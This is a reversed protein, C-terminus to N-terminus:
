NARVRYFRQPNNTAQSDTFQFQGTSIESVSGLSTWNSLASSINTSSFATYSGEPTNTFGFRFSGNTLIVGDTLRVPIEDYLEATSITGSPNFYDGSSILVKGNGLVVSTHDRRPTVMTGASIWLDRVPDYQAPAAPGSVQITSVIGGVRLVKGNPLLTATHNGLVPSPPAGSNDIWSQTVPSFLESLPSYTATSNVGGVVLVKGNRLLTLTHGYRAFNLSGTNTWTESNPDYIEANVLTTCFPTCVIGGVILVRSDALITAAHLTRPSNMSATPSWKGNNPDYLEARATHQLNADDGGAVLVKGNPLLTATHRMRSSYGLVNTMSGTLSWTGTQPDYLECTFLPMGNAHSGGAVLVRGDLLMTATFYSRGFIMSGTNTWSGTAPDYLECNSYGSGGVILVKGNSLLLARASYRSLALSSTNTFYGAAVDAPLLLCCGFLLVFIGRFCVIIQFQSKM